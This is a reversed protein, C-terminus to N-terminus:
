DGGLMRSRWGTVARGPSPAHPTATSSFTDPLFAPLVGSAGLLALPYTLVLHDLRGSLRARGYVLFAALLAVLAAATEIAVHLLPSRWAFRLFPVLLVALTLAVSALTAAVSARRAEVV